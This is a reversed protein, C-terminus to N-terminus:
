FTHDKTVLQRIITSYIAVIRADPESIPGVIEITRGRELFGNCAPLALAVGLLIVAIRKM